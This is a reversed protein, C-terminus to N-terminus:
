GKENKIVFYSVRQELTAVGDVPIKIVLEVGSTNFDTNAALKDAHDVIYQGVDKYLDRMASGIDNNRIHWPTMIMNM